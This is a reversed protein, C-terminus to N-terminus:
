SQLLVRAHHSDVAISRIQPHEKFFTEFDNTVISSEVIASDLSSVRTCSKLVDWIAIGHAILLRTKDNYSLGEEAGLLTTIIKWFANQPHAYYQGALLSAKGPM